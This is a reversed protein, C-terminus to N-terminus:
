EPPPGKGRKRGGPGPPPGRRLFSPDPTGRWLRPIHPFDDTMVYHYTGEPFEPTPGTRGNCEDLDGAGAEYRWDATFTGDHNGGPGDARVGPKLRYSSAARKWPGAPNGPEAPIWPGYIPFGDAAWGLLVMQPRGGGLVALLSAPLGHYHYTGTPQVHAHEADIGLNRGGGLAEYQWGSGRDDRWWEAAGPDLVVGNVAVGFPSMGLPTPRAAARPALPVRFAHRQPAIRNPNGRGPFRGTPHNPLGNSRIFRYEGEVLIKVEPPEGAWPVTVMVEHGSHAWALGSAVVQLTLLIKM